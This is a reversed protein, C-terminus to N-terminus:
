ISYTVPEGLYTVPEGLYTLAEDELGSYTVPEGLYTVIEGLYTVFDELPTAYRVGESVPLTLYELGSDKDSFVGEINYYMDKYQHYLRMKADINSRYRIIVKATVKSQESQAALFERASLPEIAAWLKAVEVWSVNIAGTQTNQTEVQRQLSLRHRLRGAHLMKLGTDTKKFTTFAM